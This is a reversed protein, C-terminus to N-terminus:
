NCMNRVCSLSQRKGDRMLIGAENIESHFINRCENVFRNLQWRGVKILM